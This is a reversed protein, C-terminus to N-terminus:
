PINAWGYAGSWVISNEKVVCCAMGPIKNEILHSAIYKEVEKFSEQSQAPFCSLSALGALIAFERRLYFIWKM